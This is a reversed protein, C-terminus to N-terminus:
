PDALPLYADITTVQDALHHSRPEAASPQQSFPHTEWTVGDTSSKFHYTRNRISLFQLHAVTPTKDVREINFGDLPDFAYTGAIYEQLNTLGDGDIDGGPLVDAIGNINDSRDANVVALEWADPLGDNDSDIGLTLDLRTRDSADGITKDGGQVEIPVFTNDGITVSVTYPLAPQTATPQYLRDTTGSDMPVRLHYNTGPEVTTDIISRAIVSGGSLLFIRADSANTLPEGNNDRVTGYLAHFSAPPVESCSSGEAEPRARFGKVLKPELWGVM